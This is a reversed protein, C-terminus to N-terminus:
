FSTPGDGKLLWRVIEFRSARRRPWLEGRRSLGIRVGENWARANRRVRRLRKRASPWHSPKMFVTALALRWLRVFPVLALLEWPLDKGVVIGENRIRMRQLEASPMTRITASLKHRIRATPVYLCRKGLVLARINFDTDEHMLFFDEDFLGVDDFVQRRYLAAGACAGLVRRPADYGDAPDGFGRNAANLHRVRFVDGAANVLDPRDYFLMLSAAIDYASRSELAAVLEELWRPDAVTDNNLLAVMPSVSARIGENVAKAFGGNDQRRIITVDPRESALWALSGDSSANDVVVIAFDTFTQCALAELCEPLHVLGNWNPIVVTVRPMSDGERLGVDSQVQIM